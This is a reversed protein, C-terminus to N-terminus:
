DCLNKAVWQKDNEGFYLLEIKESNIYEQVAKYVGHHRHGPDPYWDDGTIIGGKKIKKCLLSLELYTHKYEHSSDIYVWDLSNSQLRKLIDIDNDVYLRVLGIEIEKKLMKLINRLANVTSKDGSAWKWYAEYQYWPDILYLLKPKINKLLAKSFRGKFVGLEVGVGGKPIYKELVAIRININSRSFYREIFELRIIYKKLNKIIM